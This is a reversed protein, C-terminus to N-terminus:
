EVTWPVRTFRVKVRSSHSSRAGNGPIALWARKCDEDPTSFPPVRARRGSREPVEAVFRRTAPAGASFESQDPYRRSIGRGCARVGEYGSLARGLLFHGMAFHHVRQLADLASEAALDFDRQRLAIRCLGLHANVNDPDLDLAERYLERAEEWRRSRVYLDARQVRAEKVAELAALAELYRKEASLVQTRLYETVQPHGPRGDLEEVIRRMEEVRGLAQCSLFLRVSFRQEDPYRACLEAFIAYAESHRDADQYAEGLNSRLERVTHEVALKRDADPQEIYGLAIMRELAERSATPDLRTHPPHRGDAGPADEWSDIYDPEPAEVFARSVVKGDMDEGIPLGYITLITPAIDLLSVGHLVEANRIGPGSVAFIGFDGHEIAPGAPIDPITAPRLHDPHFGHDSLLIVTTDEGAKDLLTGLSRDHAQYAMSVVNHYLEFDREGIWSQRPPHYKMFGHSFHDIADYYVAFFDWPQNEMLWVAASDITMKHALTRMFGGLRKDQDQDIESALPIFPEVMAPTVQDPHVRLKALIGALEPPHVACPNLPWGADLSGHADAYHDSVMVGNIPEAPHSPWWGIVISSLGNQNLINWLAKSTRSLNTVPQVGLGDPTPESFGHIGHKFPRKGTAISTWLM